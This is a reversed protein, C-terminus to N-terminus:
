APCATLSVEERQAPVQSETPIVEMHDDHTYRLILAVPHDPKTDGRECNYLLGKSMDSSYWARMRSDVQTTSLLAHTLLQSLKM